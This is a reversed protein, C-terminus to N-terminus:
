VLESILQRQDLLYQPRGNPDTLVTSEPDIGLQHYITAFVQQLSVPRDIPQEGLRNTAGIVQGTKFGGGAMFFFAAQPWHDRGAGGNVRPTRGFEGSMLIITDQLRGVNHLDEILSSLAADLKPLQDRMSNFNDGHTDWGGWSLAVCRVGAEVLRRAMLFRENNGDRHIGYREKVTQDVERVDLAKAIEGSTIIGVARQSFSDMADMMHRNDVDRQMRDLDALLNNRDVFREENIGNSLQLNQRGNGDPQYGAHVQGLFGPRTWNNMDVFTPATGHATTQAPGLVKSMVSGIGPRGGQSELSREQWGSDSQRPSHENNMDTVSRVLAIKDGHSALRPMLECFEMGSVNTSIPMFEGRFERPAEPKLDFTDMHTPGGPLYINIISKGALSEGAMAELRFMDALTLGGIGLAGVKLFGRRSIGDCFWNAQGPITFM